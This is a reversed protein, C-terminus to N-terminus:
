FIDSEKISLLSAYKEIEGERYVEKKSIVLEGDGKKRPIIHIHVHPVEQGAEKGNNIMINTADCSLATRMKKSISRCVTMMNKISNESLEEITQVSEKSIVLTHGKRIPSIDLIAICYENEFIKKSPIEGKIIKDFVDM